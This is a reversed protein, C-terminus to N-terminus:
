VLWRRLVAALVATLIGALAMALASVGAQAESDKLVRATGIGHSSTGMAVGIALDSRIGLIRLLPPGAVAGVLGSVGTLVATLAPIGGLQNCVEIAIPTTVGRPFMSVLVDHSGHLIAVTATGASISAIVGAAVATLVQPLARGIQRAHRYFPVALAVTAPGLFFTIISGGANYQEFPIHALILLAILALCTTLLPHPARPVRVHLATSLAYLIATVSVGFLPHSTIAAPM